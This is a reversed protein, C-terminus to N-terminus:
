VLVCVFFYNKYWLHAVFCICNFKDLSFSRPILKQTRNICTLNVFIERMLVKNLTRNMCSKPKNLTRNLCTESYRRWDYMLLVRISDTYLIPRTMKVICESWSDSFHRNNLLNCNNWAHQSYFIHYWELSLSYVTWIEFTQM